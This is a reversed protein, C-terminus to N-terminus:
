RKQISEVMDRNLEMNRGDVTEFEYFGSAKDFGPAGKTIIERGDQLKIVHPTSCGALLLLFASLLGKSCFCSSNM